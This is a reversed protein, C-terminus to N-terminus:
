AAVYRKYAWVGGFVTAGVALTGVAIKAFRRAFKGKAKPEQGDALAERRQRLDDIREDITRREGEAHGIQEDIGQVTDQRLQAEAGATPNATDNAAANNAATKAANNNSSMTVHEQPLNNLLHRPITVTILEEGDQFHSPSNFADNMVSSAGSPYAPNYYGRAPPRDGWPRRPGRYPGQHVAM